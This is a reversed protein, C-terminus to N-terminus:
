QALLAEVERRFEAAEGPKFGLHVAKVVGDRGILYSSPMAKVGFDQACTQQSDRVVTFRAPVRTLFQRADDLNEDLNIAVVELGKGKLDSQLRNMYPFSQECPGCWSAWFDVYTVKGKFQAISQPADKDLTTLKCDPSHVGPQVEALCQISWMWALILSVRSMMKADGYRAVSVGLVVVSM